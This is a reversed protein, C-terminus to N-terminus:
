LTKLIDEIHGNVKVKPYIKQIKGEADIIFTTREIGMYTKGYMSKQKYVGYEKSVKAEKDSLLIFPLHYKSSFKQHSVENDPSVGLIEVGKKKFRSHNDRFDCAEQTCGPTDDKPYFYLIVTKGKFDELAHKEGTANPLTFTPAKTGEQIM